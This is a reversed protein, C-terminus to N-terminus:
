NSHCSTQNSGRDSSPVPSQSASRSALAPWSVPRPDVQASLVSDHFRPENQVTSPTWIPGRDSSGISSNIIMCVPTSLGLPHQYAYHIVCLILWGINSVLMVIQWAEVELSVVDITKMTDEATPKSLGVGSHYLLYGTCKSICFDHTRSKDLLGIIRADM